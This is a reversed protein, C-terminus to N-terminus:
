GNELDDDQEKLLADAAPEQIYLTFQGTEDDSLSVATEVNTGTYERKAPGRTFVAGKPIIIDKQLVYRKMM